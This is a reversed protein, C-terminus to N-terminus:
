LGLRRCLSLPPAFLRPYVLVCASFLLRQITNRSRSFILLRQITIPCAFATALHAGITSNGSGKRAGGRVDGRGRGAVCPARPLARQQPDRRRQRLAGRGAIRPFFRFHGSSSAHREGATSRGGASRRHEGTREEAGKARPPVTADPTSRRGAGGRGGTERRGARCVQVLTWLTMDDRRPCISGARDRFLGPRRSRPAGPQQSAGLERAGSPGRRAPGPTRQARRPAHRSRRRLAGRPRPSPLSMPRDRAWGRKSVGKTVIRNSVM